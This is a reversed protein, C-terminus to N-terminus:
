FSTTKTEDAHFPSHSERDAELPPHTLHHWTPSLLAKCTTLHKWHGGQDPSLQTTEKCPLLPNLYFCFFSQKVPQPAWEESHLQLVLEQQKHLLIICYLHQLM